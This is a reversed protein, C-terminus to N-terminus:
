PVADNAFLTNKKESSIRFVGSITFNILCKSSKMSFLSRKVFHHDVKFVRSFKMNWSKAKYLIKCDANLSWLCRIPQFSQVSTSISYYALLIKSMWLRRKALELWIQWNNRKHSLSHIMESQLFMRTAMQHSCVQRTGQPLLKQISKLKHSSKSKGVSWKYRRQFMNTRQSM